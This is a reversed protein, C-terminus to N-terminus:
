IFSATLVGHDFLLQLNPLKLDGKDQGVPFISCSNRWGLAAAEKAARCGKVLLSAQPSKTGEAAPSLLSPCTCGCTIEKPYLATDQEEEGPAANSPQQWPLQQLSEGPVHLVMIGALFYEAGLPGQKSFQCLLQQPHSNSTVQSPAECDRCTTKVM